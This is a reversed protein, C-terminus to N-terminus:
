RGVEGELNRLERELELAKLRADIAEDIMGAREFVPAMSHLRAAVPSQFTM